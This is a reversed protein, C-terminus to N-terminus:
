LSAQNSNVHLAEVITAYRKREKRKQRLKEEYIEKAQSHKREKEVQVDMLFKAKEIEGEEVSRQKAASEEKFEAELQKVKLRRISQRFENFEKPSCKVLGGETIFGIQFLSLYISQTVSDSTRYPLSM